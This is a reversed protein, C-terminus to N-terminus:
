PSGTPSYTQHDGYRTRVSRVSQKGLCYLHWFSLPHLRVDPRPRIAPHPPHGSRVAGMSLCIKTHYCGQRKPIVGAAPRFHLAESTRTTLPSSPLPDGRSESKNTDGNSSASRLGILGASCTQCTRGSRSHRLEMGARRRCSLSEFRGTSPHQLFKRHFRIHSTINAVHSYHPMRM